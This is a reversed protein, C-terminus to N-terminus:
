GVRHPVSILAKRKAVDYAIHLLEHRQNRTNFGAPSRFLSTTKPVLKFTAGFGYRLWLNWDELQDLEIDFGGHRQYLEQKFIISQIPIFNHDLLVDYDWEQHFLTPNAFHEEVYSSRDSAVKTRVEMALSYAAALNPNRMLESVLVEVHDAFLLDDDDLFMVYKGTAAALGVNGAASRGLKGNAIYRVQCGRPAALGTVLEHQTNGGDEVVILEISTYTQNLVSQIAQRLFMARGQYTRTIVTVLPAPEATDDPRHQIEYFAGVRLLEYDFERLPFYSKEPGKGTSFHVIEQPLQLAKKILLTKAGPFPSPLLFRLAYLFCGVLKALVNGYRLRIYINGIASGIYQLPKIQGASEYSFHKIVAGPVYKLVYGYSRFRYSLEVDEAYMFIHPDYGGVKTYASRRILVCAHSSWNTELTVPDYYKPHEYPIQRLEWSAVENNKDQLAARVVECLSSETFEVDLNTVLCFVSQGKKIATDHGAGFGLNEQRILQASAFKSGLKSIQESVEAVTGDVSGHDVIFLNIKSLPYSQAILTSFFQNIWRGSNYAVVSVDITPWNEDLESLPNYECFQHQARHSSLAQLALLNAKSNSWFKSRSLLILTFQSLYRRAVKFTKSRMYLPRLLIRLYNAISM